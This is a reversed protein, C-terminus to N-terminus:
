TVGSYLTDNIKELTAAIRGLVEGIDDTRGISERHADTLVGSLADLSVTVEHIKSTVLEQNDM